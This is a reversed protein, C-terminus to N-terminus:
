LRDKYTVVQTQARLAALWGQFEASGIQEALRRALVKRESEQFDAVKGPELRNVAVVTHDGNNLEASGLSLRGTEPKPLRFAQQLLVKDVTTDRRSILDTKKLEAGFEVALNALPEGQTARKLLAEAEAKLLERAKSDRLQKVIDERAEELSRLTAEKHAQVRLVVVRNPEVEIPESNYGRTLVDESFAATVVKPYAAIGEGGQRTFWGSELVKLALAKAAPELSDPNEHTLNALKEAADYFRGEAQRLRLERAVEDKVEAFSKVREPTIGDLRIIHFGFSTQVPESIDGSKKLSFLASEFEPEMMGKTIIGLEGGQIDKATSAQAEQLVQQFTKTAATIEDYVAKARARAKDVEASSAGKDVPILVHSASREEPQTYKATQEQYAAQLEDESVPIAQAIEDLQLELYRVQVQEPDRLHEKNEQYYTEVAAEDVTTKALYNALSLVVYQLERKQNLLETLKDVEAPTVIASTVVGQQLQDMVLSRRLSEEFAPESYGQAKLLGKYRETNFIGEEQFAAASQIAQSLQQDGIRLGLKDAALLLLRENVLQQIVVNKLLDPDLQPLQQRQQQFARQFELLSISSDGVKAAELNGSGSFYQNIGWLAFPIILLGIIIYAIWGTARDRITQLM